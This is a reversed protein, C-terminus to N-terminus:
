RAILSRRQNIRCTEAAPLLLCYATLLLCYVFARWNRSIERHRETTRQTETTFNSLSSKGCLRLPDSLDCLSPCNFDFPRWSRVAKQESSVSECSWMVFM